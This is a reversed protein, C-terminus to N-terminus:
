LWGTQAIGVRSDHRRSVASRRATAARQCCTRWCGPMDQGACEGVGMRKQWAGWSHQVSCVTTAVLTLNCAVGAPVCLSLCLCVSVVCSSWVFCSRKWSRSAARQVRPCFLALVPSGQSRILAQWDEGVRTFLNDQSYELVRSAAEHQWGTRM